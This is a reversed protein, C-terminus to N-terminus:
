WSIHSIACVDEVNDVGNRHSWDTKRCLTNFFAEFTDSPESVHLGSYIRSPVEEGNVEIKESQSELEEKQQEYESRAIQGEEHMAEEVSRLEKLVKVDEEESASGGYGIVPWESAGGYEVRRLPLEVTGPYSHWEVDLGGPPLLFEPSESRLMNIIEEDYQQRSIFFYTEENGQEISGSHRILAGENMLIIDVYEPSKAFEENLMWLGSIFFRALRPIDGEDVPRQGYIDEGVSQPLPKSNKLGLREFLEYTSDEYNHMQQLEEIYQELTEMEEKLTSDSDALEILKEIVDNM